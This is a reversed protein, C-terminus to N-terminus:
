VEKKFILADDDGYYNKRLGAQKFGASKYLHVAATNRSRVELFIDGECKEIFRALLEKAIGQGRYEPLVAIRYLESEEELKLGTAYGAPVGNVTKILTTSNGSNLQATIMEMSWPEDFSKQEIGFIQEATLLNRM